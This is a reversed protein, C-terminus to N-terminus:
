SRPDDSNTPRALDVLTLEEREDPASAPESIRFPPATVITRDEPATTDDV